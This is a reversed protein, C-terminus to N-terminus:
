EEPEDEEPRMNLKCTGQRERVLDMGMEGSYLYIKPLDYSDYFYRGETVAYAGTREFILLDGPRPDQMPMQCALVDSPTSLPGCVTWPKEPAQADPAQPLHTCHPIRKGQEWGEYGLHNIGGDVICYDKGGQSKADVVTTYYSGCLATLFRGMELVVTGSFRLERLLGDLEKIVQDPDEEEDGEFYPVGLGPGYELIKAEFGQERQLRQCLGDLMKLEEGIQARGKKQTGSHYQIGVIHLNEYAERKALCQLLAEEDMGFQDGSTLRLLVQVQQAQWKACYQLVEMQEPSEATFICKGEFEGMMRATDLTAKYNGSVVVNEMPVKAAECIHFEGPSCVVFGDVRDKLAEVLFPNADVAFCIRTGVRTIGKKVAAVRARLQNLDFVYSPTNNEKYQERGGQKVVQLM